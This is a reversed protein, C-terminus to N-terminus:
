PLESVAQIGKSYKHKYKTDHNVYITKLHIIKIIGNKKNSRIRRFDAPKIFVGKGGSRAPPNNSIPPIDLKLTTMPNFPNPYNHLLKFSTPISSSSKILCIFVWTLGTFQMLIITKFKMKKVPQVILM